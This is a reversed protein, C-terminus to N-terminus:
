YLVGEHSRTTTGNRAHPSAASVRAPTTGNEAAEPKPIARIAYLLQAVIEKAQAQGDETEYKRTRVYGEVFVREGKHFHSAVNARWGFAVVRHWETEEMTEGNAARFQLTTGVSFTALETKDPHDGFHQSGTHAIAGAITLRSHWSL